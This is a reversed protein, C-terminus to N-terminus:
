PGAARVAAVMADLLAALSGFPRAAVVAEAAWPSHEFIGGLAAVFDPEAAANLTDLSLSTMFIQRGSRTEDFRPRSGCSTVEGRTRPSTSM